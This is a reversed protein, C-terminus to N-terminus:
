HERPQTVVVHLWCNGTGMRTQGCPYQCAGSTPAACSPPEHCSDVTVRSPQFCSIGYGARGQPGLPPDRKTGEPEQHSRATRPTGQRTATDEGEEPHGTGLDRGRKEMAHPGLRVQYPRMQQNWRCLGQEWALDQESTGPQIHIIPSALWGGVPVAGGADQGWGPWVAEGAGLLTWSMAERTREGRRAETPAQM